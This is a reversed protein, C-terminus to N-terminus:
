CGAPNFFCGLFDFFDQSNTVADRNFDASGAFFDSIFNFFDQSNLVDNGDWDVPGFGAIFSARLTFLGIPGIASSGYKSVRLLVREGSRLQVSIGSDRILGQDLGGCVAADDNCALEVSVPGPCTTRASLVTDVGQDIGGIDNSGCTTASLRGSSPATFSYWV